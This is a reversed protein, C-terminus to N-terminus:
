PCSRRIQNRSFTHSTSSFRYKVSSFPINQAMKPRTNKNAPNAISWIAKYSALLEYMLRQKIAGNEDSVVVPVTGSTAIQVQKGKTNSLSLLSSDASIVIGLLSESNSSLSPIVEDASNKKLSVLTGLPLDTESTYSQSVSIVGSVSSAGLACLLCLLGLGFFVRRFRMTYHLIIKSYLGVM